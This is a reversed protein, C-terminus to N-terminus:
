VSPDYYKNGNNQRGKNHYTPKPLNYKKHIRGIQRRANKTKKTFIKSDRIDLTDVKMNALEYAMNDGDIESLINYNERGKTNEYGSMRKKNKQIKRFCDLVEGQTTDGFVRIAFYEGALGVTQGYEINKEMLYPAYDGYILYFALADRITASINHHDFFESIPELGVGDKFLSIEYENIIIGINKGTNKDGLFLRPAIKNEIEKLSVGSERAFDRNTAYRSKLSYFIDPNYYSYRALLFYPKTNGDLGHRELIEKAATQNKVINIGNKERFDIISKNLILKLAALKEKKGGLSKEKKM